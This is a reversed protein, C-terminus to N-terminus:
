VNSLLFKCANCLLAVRFDTSLSSHLSDLPAHQHLFEMHKRLAEPLRRQIKQPENEAKKMLHIWISAAALTHASLPKSLDPVPLAEKEPYLINYLKMMPIFDSLPNKQIAGSIFQLLIWMLQERGRRYNKAGLKDYLNQVMHPFSAHHFLVFYILHCSLHQWLFLVPNNGVNPQEKNEPSESPLENESKEMAFLILQVLQEELFPSPQKQKSTLGLIQCTLDRSYPQELIYRLLANQPELHEKNYPLLGKLIFKATCPDLKWANTNLLSSFGVIPVLRSRNCISVLQAAPKFSDIFSSFLKAFKQM